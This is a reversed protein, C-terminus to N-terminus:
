FLNEHKIIYRDEITQKLNNQMIYSSNSLELEGNLYKKVEKMWDRATSVPVNQTIKRFEKRPDDGLSFDSPLKMLEMLQRMTYFELTDPNVYNITKITLANTHDKFLICPHDSWYGNGFGDERKKLIRNLNRLEKSPDEYTSNVFGVYSKMADENSLIFSFLNCKAEQIRPLFQRNERIWLIVSHDEEKEYKEDLNDKNSKANLLFKHAELEMTKDYYNLIPAKESDWYFFFTRERRQPIGHKLSNTKIMSFSYGHEQGIEHLKRAVQGGRDTSLGPANEGIVVRPRVKELIFRSSKYMWENQIADAGSKEKNKSTNAMSLGSCPCLSTVVDVQDYTRNFTEEENLDFYDIPKKSKDKLYNMILKDNDWFQKKWSIVYKPNSNLEEMAAITMGGILPIISAHTIKKVKM